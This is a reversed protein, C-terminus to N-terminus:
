YIDSAFERARMGELFCVFIRSSLFNPLFLM